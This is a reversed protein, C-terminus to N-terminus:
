HSNTEKFSYKEGLLKELYNILLGKYRDTHVEKDLDLLNSNYSFLVSQEKRLVDFVERVTEGEFKPLQIHSSLGTQSYLPLCNLNMILFAVIFLKSRRLIYIIIKLHM